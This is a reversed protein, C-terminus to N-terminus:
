RGPRERRAVVQRVIEVSDDLAGWVIGSKRTRLWPFGLFWIAAVPLKPANITGSGVIVSRALIREAETTIAFGAGEPEVSTVTSHTRVPLAHGSAYRELRAVWAARPEFAEPASGEYPSGPLRNMANPTNLTFSDWRQSRWSQGVEGRELVVHDLGASAAQQSASLGAHGAGIIVLDLM